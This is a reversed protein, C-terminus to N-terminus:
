RRLFRSLLPEEPIDARERMVSFSNEKRNILCVSIALLGKICLAKCPKLPTPIPYLGVIIRLGKTYGAIVPMRLPTLVNERNKFSKM